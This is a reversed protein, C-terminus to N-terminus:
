GLSAGVLRGVGNTVAAVGGGILLMRLAGRLPSRGSFFALLAGVALLALGSLISSLLLGPRGALFFFPCLPVLAGAVFAVFSSSAAGWPSGLEGPDLGLEERALTDLASEPNEVIARGLREAEERPLGKARYILALERAEEEPSAELEGREKEIEHEYLERQSRVSVYEGAAMSFAGALMGAMGTLLLVSREPEAGAVGMILSFNSVLGDNMGFVAARLTGGRSGKHWKEERAIASSGGKGMAEFVRAHVKEERDMGLARADAQGAYAGDAGKETAELIPLVEATGLRRALFVLFRERFGPRVPTADAGAEKLKERWTGAHRREIAALDRFVEARERDGEAEALSEYLAAAREEDALNKRWRAIEEPPAPTKGNTADM